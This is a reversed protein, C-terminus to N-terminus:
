GVGNLYKERVYSWDQGVIDDYFLTDQSIKNENILKNVRKKAYKEKWLDVLSNINNDFKKGELTDDECRLFENTNNYLSCWYVGRPANNSCIKYGIESQIRGLIKTKVHSLLVKKSKNKTINLYEDPYNKRFWTRIINYVDSTPELHVKGETSDCKRWYKLSNYQSFGGYLSTTTIGALTEKYKHNWYNEVTDSCVMLSVLKGGLYNYGLPQTPVISSGMATHNLRKRDLKHETTWGIHKDRGGIGIFDSGLSVMGLYKNVTQPIGFPNPTQDQHVIIFKAMRGPSMKWVATSVFERLIRWTLATKTDEVPIVKVNLNQYDNEDKPTWLHKKVNDIERKNSNYWKLMDENNLHNWKKYLTYEPVSLSQLFEINEKLLKKIQDKNM